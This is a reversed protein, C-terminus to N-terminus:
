SISRRNQLFESLIEKDRAKQSRKWKGLVKWTTSLWKSCIAEKVQVKWCCQKYHDPAMVLLATEQFFHIQIPCILPQFDPHGIFTNNVSAQSLFLALHLFTTKESGHGVLCKQHVEQREERGVIKARHEGWQQVKLERLQVQIALGDACFPASFHM